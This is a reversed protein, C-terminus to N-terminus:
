DSSILSAATVFLVLLRKPRMCDSRRQELLNGNAKKTLHSVELCHSLFALTGWRREEM